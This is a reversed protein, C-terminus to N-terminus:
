NEDDEDDDDCCDCKTYKISKRCMPCKMNKVQKWCPYCLYHDCETKTATELHCVCCIDMEEINESVMDGFVCKQAICLRKRCTQIFRGLKRDFYLNNILDYMFNLFEILLDETLENKDKFEFMYDCNHTSFNNYIHRGEHLSLIKPEEIYIDWTKDNGGWLSILVIVKMKDITLIISDNYQKRGGSFTKPKNLIEKAYTRLATELTM